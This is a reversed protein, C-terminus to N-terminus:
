GVITVSDGFCNICWPGTDTIIFDERDGIYHCQDCILTDDEGLQDIALQDICDTCLISQHGDIEFVPKDKCQQCNMVKEKYNIYHRLLAYDM